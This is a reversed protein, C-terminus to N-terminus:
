IRISIANINSYGRWMDTYLITNTHVNSRVFGECIAQARDRALKVRFERITDRSIAGIIWYRESSIIRGRDDRRSILHTEDVEAIEQIAQDSGLLHNSKADADVLIQETFTSILKLVTEAIGLKM